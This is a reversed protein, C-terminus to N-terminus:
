AKWDVSPRNKKVLLYVTIGVSILLMTIMCLVLTMIQNDFIPENYVGIIIAGVRSPIFILSFVIALYKPDAYKAVVANIVPAIHAEALVLFLLSTFYMLVHQEGPYDPIFLLIAISIAGFLFGLLLKFHYSSYFYTWLFVLLVLVPFLVVSQYNTWMIKPFDLKSVESLNLGLVTIHAGSMEYAAWFVAVLLVSIVINLIRHDLTIEVNGQFAKREDGVSMVPVISLLMLVGTVIFGVNMGYEEGLYSISLVGIFAGINVALYHM